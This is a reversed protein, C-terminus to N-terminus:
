KSHPKCIKTKALYTIDTLQRKTVDQCSIIDTYTKHHLSVWM